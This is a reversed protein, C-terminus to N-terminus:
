RIEKRDIDAVVLAYQYEPPIAMMNQLSLGQKKRILVTM